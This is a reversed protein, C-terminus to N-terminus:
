IRYFRSANGAFLKRREDQSFAVTLERFADWLTAYSSYLGDVPFNSAFMARDTGFADILTFVIPRISAVSWDHDFMGLGSIKVTVHPIQALRKIGVRWAAMSADDRDAPFGAHTLAVPIGPHPEVLRAAADMQVAHVQLDFSLGYRELLPYGALWKDNALFNEPAASKEPSPHWNIRHRIGRANAYESHGALVAEFDPEHPRAHAVIAHPFGNADAVGQLWRTEAVPDAPDFGADVHVSKVVNQGSTEALYDAVSYTRAISNGDSAGGGQRQAALWPYRNQELDWLHHHADVIPLDSTM